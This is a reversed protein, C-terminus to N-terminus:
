ASHRVELFDMEAIWASFEDLRLSEVVWRHHLDDPVFRMWPGAQLPKTFRRYGKKLWKRLDEAVAEAPGLGQSLTQSPHRCEAHFPGMKKVTFGRERMAAALLRSWLTGCFHEIRWHGRSLPRFVLSSEPLELHRALDRALAFSYRPGSRSLFRAESEGDDTEVFVREDRIRTIKRHRGGLLLGGSESSGQQRDTWGATGLVRGTAEDVVEVEADSCIHAHIRGFEHDRRAREDPVYRGRSDAHLYGEHRMKDLIKRCDAKTWIARAHDPLRAQIIGASVWGHRSQFALSLAQQAIISPRFVVPESFLQGRSACDALHEFRLRDFPSSYLGTAVLADGRRNGRGVRQTFSAINPPPNVLVVRDIDGIDVGLELTMTAICIGCRADLFGREASLREGRSLSGHHAFTQLDRLQAALWEVEARRNAFVLIKSGRQSHYEVRIAEAADRLTIAEALRIKLTRDRRDDAYIIRASSGAYHHALRRADAATASAALVQMDPRFSRLRAILSCLHDGRPDGDLLHLEDLFLVDVATLLKAQRSLLSDLSEPTTILVQPPHSDSVNPSDGTKTDCRWRCAEIRRHVRRHMDNCLARTPCVVIIRPGSHSPGEEILRDMAPALLAETKGSATPACLVLSEGTAVPEIAVAQADTLGGFHGFFAHWTRRILERARREDVREDAM